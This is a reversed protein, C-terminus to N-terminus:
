ELKRVNLFGLDDLPKKQWQLAESTVHTYIELKQTKYESFEQIFGIIKASDVIRGDGVIERL